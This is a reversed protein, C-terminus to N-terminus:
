KNPVICKGSTCSQVAPVHNVTSEAMGTGISKILTCADGVFPERAKGIAALIDAQCAGIWCGPGPYVAYLLTHDILGWCAPVADVQCAGRQMTHADSDHHISFAPDPECLVLHAQYLIM